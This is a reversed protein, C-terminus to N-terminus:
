QEQDALEAHFKLKVDVQVYQLEQEKGAVKGVPQFLRYSVSNGFWCGTETRRDAM